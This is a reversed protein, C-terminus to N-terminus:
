RDLVIAVPVIRQQPTLHFAAVPAPVYPRSCDLTRAAEKLLQSADCSPPVPPPVAPVAAAVRGSVAYDIVYLSEPPQTLPAGAAEFLALIEAQMLPRRFARTPAGSVAAVAAGAGDDGVGM